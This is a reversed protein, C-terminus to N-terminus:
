ISLKKCNYVFCQDEAVQVECHFFKSLHQLRSQPPSFSFMLFVGHPKLIRAVEAVYKAAEEDRNGDCISDLTSKDIACDFFNAEIGSKECAERLDAKVWRLSPRLQQNRLHMIQLCVESVDINWIEGFDGSDHMEEALLSTGCGLHVVRSDKGACAPHIWKKLTQFSGLWDFPQQYWSDKYRALWYQIDGYDISDENEENSWKWLVATCCAGTLLVFTTRLWEM